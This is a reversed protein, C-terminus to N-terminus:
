PASLTGLYALIAEIETDSFHFNPMPTGPKVRRPNRLWQRLTDPDKYSLIGDLEPGVLAGSGEIRHCNRCDRKEVLAAGVAPTVEVRRVLNAWFRPPAVVFWVVLGILFVIVLWLNKKM